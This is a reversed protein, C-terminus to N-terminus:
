VGSGGGDASTLLLVLLFDAYNGLTCGGGDQSLFYASPLCALAFLPFPSMVSPSIAKCAEM